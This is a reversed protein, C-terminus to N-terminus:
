TDLFRYGGYLMKRVIDLRTMTTWNLFNGSWHSERPSCSYKTATASGVTVSTPIAMAAPNFQGADNDYAYCKRADFYGYYEFTPKFTTDIVGDDDLDEFDTYVPGFLLHDKSATLMVMPKKSHRRHETTHLHTTKIDRCRRARASGVSEHQQVHHGAASEVQHQRINEHHTPVHSSHDHDREDHFFCQRCFSRPEGRIGSVGHRSETCGHGSTPMKPRPPSVPRKSM